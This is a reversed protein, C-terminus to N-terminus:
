MEEESNIIEPPNPRSSDLQNYPQFSKVSKFFEPNPPEIPSGPVSQQPQLLAGSDLNPRTSSSPGSQQTQYNNGPKPKVSPSDPPLSQQPQAKNSPNPQVSLRPDLQQAPDQYIPEAEVGAPRDQYSGQSDFEEDEALPAARRDKYSKLSIYHEDFLGLLLCGSKTGTNGKNIVVMFGDDTSKVVILDLKLMEATGAVDQAEVYTGDKALKILHDEAGNETASALSKSIQHHPEKFLFVFRMLEFVLGQSFATCMCCLAYLLM